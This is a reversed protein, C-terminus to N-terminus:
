SKGLSLDFNGNLLIKKLAKRAKMLQSKSTSESIGLIEAIEKHKYGEVVYLNFVLRYGDPLSKIVDLLENLSLADLVSNNFVDSDGVNGIDVDAFYKTNKKYYNIATNLMIRRLWGEFSGEHRFEKLYKLIRIFGDHLIDEAEQQNKGYRICIGFLKPAYRRYLEDLAGDKNSICYEVLQKEDIM